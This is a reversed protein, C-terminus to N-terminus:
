KKKRAKWMTIGVAMIIFIIGIRMFFILGIQIPFNKSTFIETNCNRFTHLLNTLRKHLIHWSSIQIKHLVLFCFFGNCWLCTLKSNKMHNATEHQISTAYGTPFNTMYSCFNAVSTERRLVSHFPIRFTLESDKQKISM